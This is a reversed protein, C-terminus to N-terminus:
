HLLRGFTKLSHDVDPIDFGPMAVPDDAPQEIVKVRFAAKLEHHIMVRPRQAILELSAMTRMAFPGIQFLAGIDPAHAQPMQAVSPPTFCPGAGAVPRSIGDVFESEAGDDAKPALRM